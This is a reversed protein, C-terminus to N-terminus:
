KLSKIDVSDMDSYDLNEGAMGWIFSYSATGAASHISWNPSIVAEHNHLWLHRTESPEGMFHCIAHGEPVDFYFYVENRRDHLHPPMTNWISGTQLETLGMQLQCTQVLSHVILKHIKRLNSNEPSGATMTDADRATLLKNPYERHAPASNLYFLAPNNEDQSNFEVKKVGRGLYLAEKKELEFAENDAIIRGPGGVNIIGMERRELFYGARLSEPVGLVIPTDVPMAGGVIFREQYSYALNISGPSFISDFIFEKRLRQTDYNKVDLPNSAFKVDLKMGHIEQNGVLILSKERFLILPGHTNHISLRVYNALILLIIM